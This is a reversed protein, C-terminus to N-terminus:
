ATLPLSLRIRLGQPSVAQATATGGHRHAIEAVIALGLGCGGPLESARWFREFVHALDAPSLGPGNDEVELQAQNQSQTVRLTVVSGTGAYLIANDLLNSLAEHLLIKEGEILLSDEGEYGLDIGAALARPTWERAVERALAAADLAQLKVDAENRALSLLQHVLHASRQAGALVKTLRNKLAQPDSEALALETQSILGALPTRLQHAADNLFRKEQGLSRRVVSLLQNVAGALAHVEQPAQTMEIPSLASLSFERRDGLQAQLRKLPSLGRSIGGYVLVSLVAGLLLLPLLMDSVLEATIRKQVALSKAVQVRLNQPESPEGYNVDLLAIRMPKGDVKVNYLLPEGPASYAGDPPGPLKGNGLLFSGPPSSVMYSVRDKPDQEIIDQAARPFDILLGSGVPKVQRALSRVSQTLSQDIGKEAYNLAIRYTLAGGVLLLVLQPLLLWLLLQRKLSLGHGSPAPNSTTM